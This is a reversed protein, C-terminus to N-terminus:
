AGARRGHPVSKRTVKRDVVRQNRGMGRRVLYPNSCLGQRYNRAGEARKSGSKPAKGRIVRVVGVGHSGGVTLGIWGDSEAQRMSDAGISAWGSAPCGSGDFIRSVPMEN